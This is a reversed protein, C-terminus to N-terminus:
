DTVNVAVTLEVWPGMGFPSLTFNVYPAVTSPVAVVLPPVALTDYEASGTPESVTVAVKAPSAVYLVLLPVTTCFTWYDWAVLRLWSPAARTNTAVLLSESLPAKDLM